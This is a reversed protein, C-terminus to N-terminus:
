RLVQHSIQLLLSVCVQTLAQIILSDGHQAIFTIHNRQGVVLFDGYHGDAVRFVVHIVAQDVITVAGGRKHRLFIFDSRLRRIPQLLQFGVVQHHDADLLGIHKGVAIIADVVGRHIEEVAQHRLVVHNEVQKSAWVGQIHEADVVANFAHQNAILVLHRGHVGDHFQKCALHIGM